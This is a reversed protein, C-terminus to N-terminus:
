SHPKDIVTIHYNVIEMGSRDWAGPTPTIEFFGSKGGQARTTLQWVGITWDGAPLAPMRVTFVDNVQAVPDSPPYMWMDLLWGQLPAWFSLSDVPAILSDDNAGALLSPMGQSSVRLDVYFEEGAYITSPLQIEEVYPMYAILGTLDTDSQGGNPVYGDGGCGTLTLWGVILLLTLNRNM